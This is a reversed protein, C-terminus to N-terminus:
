KELSRRNVLVPNEIGLFFDQKLSPKTATVMVVTVLVLKLSPKIATVLVVM